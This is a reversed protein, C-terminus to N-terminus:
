AAAQGFARRQEWGGPGGKRLQGVEGDQVDWVRKIDNYGMLHDGNM